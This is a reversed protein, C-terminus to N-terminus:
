AMGAADEEAPVRGFRDAIIDGTGIVDKGSAAAGTKRASQRHEIEHLAGAKDISGVGRKGGDAGCRHLQGFGFAKGRM